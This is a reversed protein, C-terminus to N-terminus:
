EHRLATLPAVAVARRAPVYCALLMPVALLIAVVAVVAPGFGALGYVWGSLFRSIGSAMLLGIALGVATLRVGESLVLRMVDRPTAGVAIRIGFERTRQGVLFARVGYLGVGAVVLAVLGLGALVRAALRVFWVEYGADRHERLTRVSLLPLAPDAARIAEAVM